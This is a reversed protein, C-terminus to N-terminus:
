NHIIVDIKNLELLRSLNEDFSRFIDVQTSLEKM